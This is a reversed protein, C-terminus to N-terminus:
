QVFDYAVALKVGGIRANRPRRDRESNPLVEARDKKTFTTRKTMASRHGELDTALCKMSFSAAARGSLVGAM